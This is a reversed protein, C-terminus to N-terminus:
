EDNEEGIIALESIVYEESFWRHLDVLSCQKSCFPFHKDGFKGEFKRKCTPCIIVKSQEM